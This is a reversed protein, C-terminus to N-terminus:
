YNFVLQQTVELTIKLAELSYISIKRVNLYKLLPEVTAEIPAVLIGKLYDLYFKIYVKRVISRLGLALSFM